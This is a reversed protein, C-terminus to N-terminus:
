CMKRMKKMEMRYKWHNVFSSLYIVKIKIKNNRISKIFNEHEIRWNEKIPANEHSNSGTLKNKDNKTLSKIKKIM